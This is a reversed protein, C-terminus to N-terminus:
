ELYQLHLTRTLYHVSYIHISQLSMARVDSTHCCGAHWMNSVTQSAASKPIDILKHPRCTHCKFDDFLYYSLFLFIDTYM